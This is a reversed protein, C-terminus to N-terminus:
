LLCHTQGHHMQKREGIMKFYERQEQQQHLQKLVLVYVGTKVRVPYKPTRQPFATNFTM